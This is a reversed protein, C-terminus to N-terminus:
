KAKRYAKNSWDSYVMKGDVKKYARVKYYYRTGKKLGKTNKYSKKTTTFAKKYGSDKKTSKWIQYGDAAAADGKVTWKVTISGKKAVSSATIKLAQVKAAVDEKSDQTFKDLKTLLSERIACVGAFGRAFTEDAAVADDLREGQPAAPAPEAKPQAKPVAKPAPREARPAPREARPAPAPRVEAVPEPAPPQEDPAEYTLKVKAPVSGIGLFGTRGRELIELSVDDRDLGLQALGKAVAEEETKGTVELYKLV